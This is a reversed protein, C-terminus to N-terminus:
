AASPDGAAAYGRALDSADDLDLLAVGPHDVLWQEGAARDALLPMQTCVPSTPGTTECCDTVEPGVVAVVTSTPRADTVTGDPAVDLDIAQGTVPCTSRVHAPEQLLIPLFLTDFGCWAYLDNGRVQFRHSTARLTLAAGVLRGHDDVEYGLARAQELWTVVETVPWGTVTAVQDATVPRGDALLGLVARRPGSVESVTRSEGRTSWVARLDQLTPTPM